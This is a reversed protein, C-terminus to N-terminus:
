GPIRTAEGQLTVTAGRQIDEIKTVDKAFSSPAAPLPSLVAVTTM